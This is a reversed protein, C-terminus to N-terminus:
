TVLERVTARCPDACAVAAGDGADRTPGGGGALRSPHTRTAHITFEDHPVHVTVDHGVDVGGGKCQLGAQYNGPYGGEDGNNNM